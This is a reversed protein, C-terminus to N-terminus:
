KIEEVLRKILFGEAYKANCMAGRIAAMNKIKEISRHERVQSAHLQYAKIKDDINISKFYNPVFKGVEPWIFSHIQEYLLVEPVFHNIDHPRLATIAADHVARHDQNYSKEPILIRKPEITNILNEIVSILKSSEYGNVPNDLIQYSFRCFKSVAEVERLRTDRSITERDEIGFYIVTAYDNLFAYSGLVEDDAHPTLILTPNKSINAM